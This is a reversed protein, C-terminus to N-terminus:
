IGCCCVWWTLHEGWVLRGCSCCFLVFEHELYELKPLDVEDICVCLSCVDSEEEAIWLICGSRLCGRAQHHSLCKLYNTLNILKKVDFYNFDFLNRLMVLNLLQSYMKRVM